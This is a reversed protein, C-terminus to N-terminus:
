GSGERIQFQIMAFVQAFTSSRKLLRISPRIEEHSWRFVNMVNKLGASLGVPKLTRPM